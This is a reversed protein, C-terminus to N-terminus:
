ACHRCDKGEAYTSRNGVNDDRDDGNTGDRGNRDDPSVFVDSWQEACAPGRKETRHDDGASRSSHQVCEYAPIFAICYESDCKATHQKTEPFNIEKTASTSKNLDGQHRLSSIRTVDISPTVSLQTPRTM